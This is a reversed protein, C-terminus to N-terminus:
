KGARENREARQADPSHHKVEFRAQAFMRAVDDMAWGFKGKRQRLSVSRLVRSCVRCRFCDQHPAVLAWKRSEKYKTKM